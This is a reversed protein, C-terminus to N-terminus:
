PGYYRKLLKECLGCRRIPTWVWMRDGPQFHVARRRLNYRRADVHQQDHIRLRALQCVEEGRQSVAHADDCGDDVPEHPLMADLMTTVKRRHVLEFPTFETTKQVATNYAFTVYPLVEDWTKHELDVYMLVTYAIIKNLRETLGNTQPHYATTGCHSTHSLRLIEQTPQALFSSGRDTILVEPTGHRLLISEIFFKDVEVATGSPLAKTKAYRTLYDTAVIICRNGADVAPLAWAFENWHRQYKHCSRTYLYVTKPLETWYYKDCIRALTRSYGLHGATPDDHCARFIEERLSILVVLLWPTKSPGFNNGLRWHFDALGPPIDPSFASTWNATRSQVRLLLPVEPKCLAECLRSVPVERVDCDPTATQLQQYVQVVTAYFSLPFEATLCSNGLGRPVLVRRHTSLWYLTLSRGPYDPADLIDLVNRLALLRSFTVLCPISLGGNSRSM